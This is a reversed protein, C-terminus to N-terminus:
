TSGDAPSVLTVAPDGTYNAVPLPIGQVPQFDITVTKATDMNPVHTNSALVVAFQHKGPTLGDGPVVFSTTTYINTLQAITSGDVFVLAQGTGDKDAAGSGASDITFDQLHLDFLIDNTDITAGESPSAIEFSPAGGQAFARSFIAPGAVAAAITGLALQRRNLTAHM